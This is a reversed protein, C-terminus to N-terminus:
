RLEPIKARADNVDTRLTAVIENNRDKYGKHVSELKLPDSNLDNLRREQHNLHREHDTADARLDGCQGNFKNIKAKLREEMKSMSATHTDLTKMSAAISSTIADTLSAVLEQKLLTIATNLKQDFNQEISTIATDLKHDHVRLIRSVDPFTATVAKYLAEDSDTARGRSANNANTNALASFRNGTLPSSDNAPKPSALQLPTVMQRGRAQVDTFRAGEPESLLPPSKDDVSLDESEDPAPPPPPAHPRSMDQTGRDLPASPSGDSRLHPRRGTSPPSTEAAAATSSTDDDDISNKSPM